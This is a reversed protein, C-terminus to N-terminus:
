GLPLDVDPQGQSRLLRERDVPEFAMTASVMPRTEPWSLETSTATMPSHPASGPHGSPRGQSPGAARAVAEQGLSAHATLTDVPAFHAANGLQQHSNAMHAERQFHEWGAVAVAASGLLLMGWGFLTIVSEM